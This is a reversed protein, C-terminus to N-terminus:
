PLIRRLMGLWGAQTGPHAESSLACNQLLYSLHEARNELDKAQM